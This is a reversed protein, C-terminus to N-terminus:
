KQTKKIVIKQHYTNSVVNLFDILRPYLKKEYTGSRMQMCSVIHIQNGNYSPLSTFFGFPEEKAVIGPISEIEYGNPINITIHNEIQYGEGIFINEQRNTPSTLKQRNKAIPFAPVFLRKGTTTAYQHSKVLSNITMCAGAGEELELNEVEAQPISLIHLLSQQQKNKDMKMIPMISEYQHNIFEQSSKIKTTGDNELQIEISNRVLNTSDPYVPLRVLRGGTKGIEIANHGAIGKHVYGIPLQPNTCELWLTDKLLPVQLIVHDMQGVSAFDEILDHRLTSITTYNSPIGIEELMARMYNSLGKCDGYGDRNVSSAPAPRQGGIGLLIAVYRTTRGLYDYLVKVKEHETKLNDTMQHIEQCLAPPLISSGKLLGYEWKGYDMWDKLSGQTGYYVFFSPAFFAVPIREYLPRSYSEQNIPPIDTLGLTLTKTAKPGEEIQVTSNINQLAYRVNYDKPVTLQYSANRLEIDYDTLPCFSPFEILNNQCDVEWEYTITVPYVSPTYEAYLIYDDVALFPSYETQKLESRKIKRLLRGSADTVMGKFSLLSNAKSITYSFNGFEAATKDLITVSRKFHMIAHVPNDCVVNISYDDIIAKQASSPQLFGLLISLVILRKYLHSTLPHVKQMMFLVIIANKREMM